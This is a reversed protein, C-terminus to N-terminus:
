ALVYFNGQAIRSTETVLVVCWVGSRTINEISEARTNDLEESTATVVWNSCNQATPTKCTNIVNKLSEEKFKLYKLRELSPLSIHLLFM